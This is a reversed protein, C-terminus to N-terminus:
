LFKELASNVLDSQFILLGACDPSTVLGHIKEDSIKLIRKTFLTGYIRFFFM